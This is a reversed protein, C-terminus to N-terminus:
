EAQSNKYVDYLGHPNEVFFEAYGCEGCLRASMLYEHSGKMLMAEPNEDVVAVVGGAPPGYPAGAKIRVQPIIKESQCKPCVSTKAM